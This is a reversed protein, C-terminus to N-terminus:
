AQLCSGSSRPIPTRSSCCFASLCASSEELGTSAPRLTASSCPESSIWRSFPRLSRLFSMVLRAAAYATLAVPPTITGIIGFYFVFLHSAFLSFGMQTLARICRCITVHGGAGPGGLDPVFWNITKPEPTGDKQKGVRIRGLVFAFRGCVDDKPGAIVEPLVAHRKDEQSLFHVIKKATAKAGEDQLTRCTKGALDLLRM